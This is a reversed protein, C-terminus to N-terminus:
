RTSLLEELKRSLAKGRLNKAIIMGNPDILLNTPISRVGYLAGAKSNWYNLESVHVWNMEKERITRVWPEKEKDFSVGFIEFGKPSFEKYAEVMYPIENMCPPCWSAWFDLLVYKGPGVISSLAIEKGDPDPASFDIYMGKEVRELAKAMDATLKGYVSNQMNEDLGALYENLEGSQMKPAINRFLTYAATINGPNAKVFDIDLRALRSTLAEIENNVSDANGGVVIDRAATLSDIIAKEEKKYRDYIEASSSGTVAINDPDNLSGSITLATNELPFMVYGETRTGIQAMVPAELVGEFHFRGNAVEASDIVTPVKGEMVYLYVTNGAGIIEGSIDYGQETKKECAATIIGLAFVSLLILKKM